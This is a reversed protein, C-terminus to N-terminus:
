RKGHCVSFVQTFLTINEHQSSVMLNFSNTENKNFWLIKYFYEYELLNPIWM